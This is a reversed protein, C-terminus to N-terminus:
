PILLENAGIPPHTTYCWGCYRRVWRKSAVALSEALLFKNLSFSNARARVKRVFVRLIGYYVAAVLNVFIWLVLVVRAVDNSIWQVLFRLFDPLVDAFYVFEFPFVVFLWVGGVVVFLARALEALLM